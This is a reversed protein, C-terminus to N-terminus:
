SHLPKEKLIHNTDRGDAEDATAEWGLSALTSAAGPDPHTPWSQGGLGAWGSLTVWLQSRPIEVHTALNHWLVLVISWMWGLHFHFRQGVDGEYFEERSSVHGHVWYWRESWYHNSFLHQQIQLKKSTLNCIAAWLGLLAWLHTENPRCLRQSSLLLNSKTALMKLDPFKM